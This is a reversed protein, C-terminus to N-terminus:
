GRRAGIMRSPLELVVGDAGPTGVLDPAYLRGLAAYVPPLVYFLGLLGLVAVTTQRAAKGDPNTYFRVVVHPLGMTGLFTAVMLSYTSYLPHDGAFDVPDAWASGSEGGVFLSPDAPSRGGDGLWVIVLFLLPLSLAFLKLWYQFAQVFTISRMGGALVNLLVVVAVLLGGTWGPLGTALDCPSM